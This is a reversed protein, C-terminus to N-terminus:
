AAVALPRGWEPRGRPRIASDPAPLTSTRPTAPSTTWPPSNGCCYRQGQTVGGQACRNPRLWRHVESHAVVGSREARSRLGSRACGDGARDPTDIANLPHAQSARMGVVSGFLKVGDVRGVNGGVPGNDNPPGHLYRRLHGRQRIEMSPRRVAPDTAKHPLSAVLPLRDAMDPDLDRDALEQDQGTTPVEATAALLETPQLIYGMFSYHTAAVGGVLGDAAREQLRRLPLM